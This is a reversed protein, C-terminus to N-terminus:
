GKYISNYVLSLKDDQCTNSPIDSKLNLVIDDLFTQYESQRGDYDFYEFKLDISQSLSAANVYEQPLPVSYQVINPTFGNLNLPKISVEGIWASGTRGSQYDCVKSRFLPAGFGNADTEFDFLVKGFYKTNPRDNVIKGVYKGFRGFDGSYRSKEMNKSKYFARPFAQPITIYTNLPDNNMYVELETYPEMTVYFGLTYIQNINYNQQFKTTLIASQTHSAYLKASEIQVNNAFSGTLADFGYPNEYYFSWYNDIISQTNFHGILRYDSEHKAYNTFNLYAADTLYEVPTVIQDNLVKYDGTLSGLKASTKIRYVQGGIPNLDSFSLELYSQSITSSTVFTQETPIYTLSGTFRSANKYTFYSHNGKALNNSDITKVKLPKSIVAQRDNVIEVISANFTKLQQSVSGSVSIGNPLAPGLIQPTSASSHFEFYGGLHEKKFFSTNSTVITNFRRTYNLEYGNQIDDNKERAATTVSNQTGSRRLPNIIISKLRTDLINESSQFDMDFGYFNSTTITLDSVSSTINQFVYASATSQAKISAPVVVQAVSVQPPEDFVLVSNNRESPLVNFAKKWRVNFKDTDPIANGDLDFSAVGVFYATALGKATIDYIDISIYYDGFRDTYSAVESFIRVGNADIIEVDISRNIRLNVGNGKLKIINRGGGVVVPFHVINFYNPSTASRDEILYSGESYGRKQPIKYVSLYSM